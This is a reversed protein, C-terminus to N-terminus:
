PVYFSGEFYFCFLGSYSMRNEVKLIFCLRKSFFIIKHHPCPLVFPPPRETTLRRLARGDTTKTMTSRCDNTTPRTVRYSLVIKFSLCYQFPSLLVTTATFLRYNCRAQKIVTHIINFAYSKTFTLHALIM